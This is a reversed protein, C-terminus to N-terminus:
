LGFKWVSHSLNGFRYSRHLLSAKRDQDAVGMAYFIPIFHESGYPPVALHASEALTDYNFLSQLDWDALHRELWEDFDQAWHDIHDDDDFNVARLNHVTGGSGVVMVGKARLSALSQGIKYQEEPTARPNVSMAIVPIDAGPFLLRLVVWSGHDLGRTTESQFAVGNQRFAQQIEDYVGHNGVAPYDIRYLEEPFGMFDYIMGYREIDSVKQMASVWHASFLIVARPRMSKGLENLFRTYENDEMALMPSGHAIFFSPMMM